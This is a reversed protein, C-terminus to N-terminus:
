KPKPYTHIIYNIVDRHIQWIKKILLKFLYYIIKIPISVENLSKKHISKMLSNDFLNIIVFLRTSAYM